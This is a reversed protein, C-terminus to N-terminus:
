VRDITACRAAIKRTGQWQVDEYTHPVRMTHMSMIGIPLRACKHVNDFIILCTNKSFAADRFDPFNTVDRLSCQLIDIKLLGRSVNCSM